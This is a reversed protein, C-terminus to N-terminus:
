LERNGDDNMKKKIIRQNMKYCEGGAEEDYAVCRVLDYYVTFHKYDVGLDDFLLQAAVYYYAGSKKLPFSDRDPVGMIAMYLSEPEGDM